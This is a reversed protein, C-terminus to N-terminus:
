PNRAYYLRLNANNILEGHVGVTDVKKKAERLFELYENSGPLFPLEVKLYKDKNLWLLAYRLRYPLECFAGRGEILTVQDFFIAPIYKRDEDTSTFARTGRTVVTVEVFYVSLKIREFTRGLESQYNGYYSAM